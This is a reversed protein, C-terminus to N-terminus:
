SSCIAKPCFDNNQVARGEFSDKFHLLIDSPHRLFDDSFVLFHTGHLVFDLAFVNM